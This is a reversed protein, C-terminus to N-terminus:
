KMTRMFSVTGWVFAGATVWMAPLTAILQEMHCVFTHCVASENPVFCM